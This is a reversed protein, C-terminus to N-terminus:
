IGLSQLIDQLVAEVKQNGLINILLGEKQYFGILPATQADYVALRKEVTAGTDDARQYVEGGCVDCVGEQKPANYEVHYTAACQRCVLRGAMRRILNPRDVEINLVADLNKNLEGLLGKLAEAQVVTRPFGDLLFGKQCDTQKLREKVIGITVEDPVLQGTEMYGKAKLGLETGQQMAQRFMDGTSIHPIQLQKVLLVAQTGKGAGPPGMLILNM